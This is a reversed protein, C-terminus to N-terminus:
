GVLSTRGIEGVWAHDPETAILADRLWDRAAKSLQPLASRLDADDRHRVHKSKYLLQVEPALYRLGCKSHRLRDYATASDDAATSVGVRRRDSFARESASSRRAETRDVARREGRLVGMGAFRRSSDPCRAKSSWCGPGHSSTNNARPVARDSLWRCDVMSFHFTAVLYGSSSAGGSVVRAGAHRRRVGRM